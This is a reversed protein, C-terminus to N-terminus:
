CVFAVDTCLYAGVHLLAGQVYWIISPLNLAMYDKSRIAIGMLKGLFALMELEVSSVAGPNLIWKERHFFACAVVFLEDILLFLALLHLLHHM